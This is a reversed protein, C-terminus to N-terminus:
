PPSLNKTPEGKPETSLSTRNKKVPNDPKLSLPTRTEPADKGSQSTRTEPDDKGSQSTRTEPDDKGSQPTWNEYNAYFETGARGRLKKTFWGADILQVVGRRM